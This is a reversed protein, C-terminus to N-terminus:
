SESAHKRPEDGASAEQLEFSEEVYIEHM